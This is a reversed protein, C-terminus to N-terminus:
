IFINIIILAFTVSVLVRIHRVLKNYAHTAEPTVVELPSMGPNTARLMVVTYLWLLDLDTKFARKLRHTLVFGYAVGAAGGCYLFYKIVTGLM